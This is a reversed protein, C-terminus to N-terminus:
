VWEEIYKDRALRWCVVAFATLPIALIMGLIGGLASGWFFVAVIIVMPHLGTRDGMIRPTLLYGEILQVVSMAVLVGLVTELGGGPQFYALPLTVALGVMSGLYPIINLFGLVLGLLFGFQLGVITFGVAFLLGQLTAIVLQSRFFVVIIDVFQELLFVVDERTEPKLFPLHRGLDSAKFSPTLLFFAFYVPTVAWGFLGGVARMVGMGANLTGQGIVRAADLLGSTHESLFDRLRQGVPGDLFEQVQPWRQELQRQLNNWWAPAAEILDAIQRVLIFGFFWLFAALPILVSLFLAVLALPAKLHLRRELWAFYPRCVMAGIGAVALPLFVHAFAGLFRAVLWFFVGVAGLITVVAVVTIATAVVREQRESLRM